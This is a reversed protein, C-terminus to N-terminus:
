RCYASAVIGSPLWKPNSVISSGSGKAIRYQLSVAAIALEGPNLKFPLEIQRTAIKEENYPTEFNIAAQQRATSSESVTCSALAISWLVAQTGAPAAIDRTPILAPIRIVAPGSKSWDVQARVRLRLFISCDECFEFENIEKLDTSLGRDAEPEYLKLWQLLATNLRYMIKRGKDVPLFSKLGWRLSASMSVAMGFIKASAKTAKTQRVKSPTTRVCPIGRFEYFVLNSIKGKLPIAGTKAM